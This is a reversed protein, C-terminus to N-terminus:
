GHVQAGVRGLDVELADRLAHGVGDVVLLAEGGDREADVVGLDSREQKGRALEDDRAREAALHGLAGHVVNHAHESFCPQEAEHPVVQVRDLVDDAVHAEGLGYVDVEVRQVLPVVGQAGVLRGNERPEDQARAVRGDHQEDELRGADDDGARVRVAIHAIAKLQRQTNQRRKKALLEHHSQRRTLRLPRRKTFRSAFFRRRRFFGVRRTERCASKHATVEETMNLACHLCFFCMDM